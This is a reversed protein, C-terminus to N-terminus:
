YKKYINEQVVIRKSSFFNSDWKVEVIIQAERNPIIETVSITRTYKSPEGISRQDVVFQRSDADYYLPSCGQIGCSVTLINESQGTDLNCMVPNGKTKPECMGFGGLWLVTDDGNRYAINNNDRINKLTEIADQALYFATVQDRALFSSRLGSQAFSLPGTTSVLLIFIAVLTEIITFGGQQTTKNKQINKDIM